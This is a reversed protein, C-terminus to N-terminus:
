EAVGTGEQESVPERDPPLVEYKVFLARLARTQVISAVGMYLLPLGLLTVLCFCALLIIAFFLGVTFGPNDLALLLARKLTKVTGPRQEILIPYHYLVTLMWLFGAYIFLVGVGKIWLSDRTVYFLANALILMTVIVQGLALAWGATLFQKAGRFLDLPSPDDRTIIKRAVAFVGATVPAVLLVYLGVLFALRALFLPILRLVSLGGLVVGFWVFSCVLALGLYDYADGLSKRLIKGFGPM